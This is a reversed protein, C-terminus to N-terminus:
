REQTPYLGEQEIYGFVRCPILGRVSEERFKPKALSLTTRIHTSSIAPLQTLGTTNDEGERGIVHFTLMERLANIDKWKDLQREEDQGIIFLFTHKPHRKKLARILDVTYTTRLYKEVDLVRVNLFPITFALHCMWLRQDFSAMTQKGFGHKWCPVIWVQDVETNSLTEAVAYVHSMHPPDFAGGYLAVRM